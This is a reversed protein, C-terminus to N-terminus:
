IELIKLIEVLWARVNRKLARSPDLLLRSSYREVQCHRALLISQMHVAWFTSCAAHTGAVSSIAKWGKLVSDVSDDFRSAFCPLINRLCHFSWKLWDLLQWPCPGTDHFFSVVHFWAPCPPRSSYMTFQKISMLYLQLCKLMSSFLFATSCSSTQKSSFLRCM